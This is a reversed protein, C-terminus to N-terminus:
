ALYLLLCLERSKVHKCILIHIFFLPFLCLVAQCLNDKNLRRIIFVTGLFLELQSSLSQLLLSLITIKPDPIYLSNAEKVLCM